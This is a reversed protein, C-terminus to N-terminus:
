RDSYGVVGSSPRCGRPGCTSETYAGTRPDRCRFRNCDWRGAGRYGYAGGQRERGQRDLYGVVGSSPRCRGYNCTSETYAGTRPDLCRNYDCLMRVPVMDPAATTGVRSPFGAANFSGAGALVAALTLSVMKCCM